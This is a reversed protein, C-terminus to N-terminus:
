PVTEFCLSFKISSAGFLTEGDCSINPERMGARFGRIKRGRASPTRPGAKAPRSFRRRTITVPRKVNLVIAELFVQLQVKMIGSYRARKERKSFVNEYPARLQTLWRDKDKNKGKMNNKM